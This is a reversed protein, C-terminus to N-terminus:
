THTNVNQLLASGLVRDLYLKPTTSKLLQIGYQANLGRLFPFLGTTGGSTQEYTSIKREHPSALKVTYVRLKGM